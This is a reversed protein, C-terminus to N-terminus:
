SVIKIVNIIFTFDDKLKDSVYRMLNHNCSNMIVSLAISYNNKIEDSAFKFAYPNNNIAITVLDINNKIENSSHRLLLGDYGLMYKTIYTNIM